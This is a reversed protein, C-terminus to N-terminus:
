AGLAAFQEDVPCDCEAMNEAGCLPCGARTNFTALLNQGSIEARISEMLKGDVGKGPEVGFQELMSLTEQLLRRLRVNEQIIVESM